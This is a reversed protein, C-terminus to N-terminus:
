YELRDYILFTAQQGYLRNILRNKSYHLSFTFEGCQFTTNPLLAILASVILALLSKVSILSYFILYSVLVPVIGVLRTRM